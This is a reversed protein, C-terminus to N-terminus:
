LSGLPKSALRSMRFGAIMILRRLPYEWIPSFVRLILPLSKQRIQGAELVSGARGGVSLSGEHWRFSALKQDVFRLSGLQRLRIFLDLDFAWKYQNDLGGLEIFATRRILSGPQPILQPGFRLLPVAYRGSRNSWIVEENSNIYDCRGFSFVCTADELLPSLAHSLSGKELLDDDGLWTVFENERPLDAIGLNIATALGMKPDLLLRDYLDAPISRTIFELDPAVILIFANGAERISRLCDLIFKPRSGMTPVVVGVQYSM